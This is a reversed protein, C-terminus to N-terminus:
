RSLASGAPDSRTMVFPAVTMFVIGFGFGTVRQISSALFAFFVVLVIAGISM